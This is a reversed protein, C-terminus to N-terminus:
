RTAVVVVTSVSGCAAVHRAPGPSQGSAQPAGIRQALETYTVSSGPPIALLAQWVRQQFATGRIDLPLDLGLRPAEVFGTAILPWRHRAKGSRM